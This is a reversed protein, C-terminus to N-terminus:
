QGMEGGMGTPMGSPMQRQAIKNSVDMMEANLVPAIDANLKNTAAETAQLKALLPSGNYAALKANDDASLTGSKEKDKLEMLAPLAKLEDLTYTDNMQKAVGSSVQALCRKQIDSIQMAAWKATAPDQIAAGLKDIDGKTKEEVSKNMKDLNLMQWILSEKETFRSPISGDCRAHALSPVLLVLAAIFALKKM